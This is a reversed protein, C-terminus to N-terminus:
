IAIVQLEEEEEEEDGDGREYTRFVQMEAVNRRGLNAQEIRQRGGSGRSSM